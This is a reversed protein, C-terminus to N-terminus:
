GRAWVGQLRRDGGGGYLRHKVLVGRGHGRMSQPQQLQQVPEGAIDAACVGTAVGFELHDNTKFVSGMFGRMFDIMETYFGKRYANNIPVDYEDMLVVVRKKHYARLCTTLFKLAERLDEEPAKRMFFSYFVEKQMNNLADSEYIYLNEQYINSVLNQLTRLSKEYTSEEIDKMSLLVVPYKGMHKEVIDEHEMIELGDFLHRGDTNMDFFHKLMSMTLTKGFRRPRTILTVTGRKELLEKIFLTKDVYYYDGEIIREFSEEGILIRKKM